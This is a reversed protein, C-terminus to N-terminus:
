LWIMKKHYQTNHFNSSNKQNNNNHSNNNNNKQITSSMKILINYCQVIINLKM